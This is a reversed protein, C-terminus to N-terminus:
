AITLSVYCLEAGDINEDVVRSIEHRHPLSHEPFHGYLFKVLRHRDVHAAGSEAGFGDRRV